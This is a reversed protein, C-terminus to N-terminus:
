QNEREVAVLARDILDIIADRRRTYFNDDAYQDIRNILTRPVGFVSIGVKRKSHPLRGRKNMSSPM